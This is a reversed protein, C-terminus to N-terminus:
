AAFGDPKFCLGLDEDVVAIKNLENNDLTVLSTGIKNCVYIDHSEIEKKKAKKIIM